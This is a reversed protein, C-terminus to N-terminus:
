APVVPKVSREPPKRPKPPMPVAAELAPLGAGIAVGFGVIKLFRRRTTM